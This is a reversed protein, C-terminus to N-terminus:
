AAWQGVRRWRAVPEERYFRPLRIVRAPGVPAQRIRRLAADADWSQRPAGAEIWIQQLRAVLQAREPDAAIWQRLAGADADPLEGALYRALDSWPTDRPIHHDSMPV